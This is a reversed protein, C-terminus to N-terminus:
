PPVGAWGYAACCALGAVAGLAESAIAYARLAARRHATEFVPLDADVVWPLITYFVAALFVANLPSSWACLLGALAPFALVTAAAALLTARRM